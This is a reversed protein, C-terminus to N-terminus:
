VVRRSRHFRDKRSYHRPNDKLFDACKVTLKAPGNM